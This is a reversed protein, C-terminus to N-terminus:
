KPSKWGGGICIFLELFQLVTQFLEALNVECRKGDLVYASNNSHSASKSPVAWDKLPHREILFFEGYYGSPNWVVAGGVLPAALFGL